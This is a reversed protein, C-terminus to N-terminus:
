RHHRSRGELGRVALAARRCKDVSIEEITGQIEVLDLSTSHLEVIPGLIAEVEVLKNRNSTIFNIAKPTM